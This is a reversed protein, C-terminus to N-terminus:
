LNLRKLGGGGQDWIRMIIGGGGTFAVDCIDVGNVGSRNKFYPFLKTCTYMCKIFVSDM